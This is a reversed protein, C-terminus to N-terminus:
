ANGNEKRNDYEEQAERNRKELEARGEEPNECAEIIRILIYNVSVKPGELYFLVDVIGPRAECPKPESIAIERMGLFSGMATLEHCLNILADPTEFGLCVQATTFLEQEM